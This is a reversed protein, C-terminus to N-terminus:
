EKIVAYIRSTNCEELDTEELWEKMEKAWIEAEM